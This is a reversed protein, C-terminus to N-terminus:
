INLYRIICIGSGGTGDGVALSAGGGGGGTNATGPTSTVGFYGGNGGGGLGGPAGPFSAIGNYQGGGGGGGYYASTGSITSYFGRGGNSNYMPDTPFTPTSGRGAIGGKEGAGGGGGGATGGSDGLHGRHGGDYGQGPYGQGGRALVVSSAGGVLQVTVTAGDPYSTGAGGCGGGGGGEGAGGGYATLNIAGGVFTSNGGRRTSATTSAQSAGAGITITYTTGATVALAAGQKIIQVESGYYVVGGAGGGGSHYYQTVTPRSAGGGGVLMLQINGTVTPTFTGSGTYTHIKYNGSYTITGGTAAVADMGTAQTLTITPITTTGVWLNATTYVTAASLDYVGTARASTPAIASGIVSGYQRYRSM